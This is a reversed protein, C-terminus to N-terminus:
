WDLTIINEDFIRRPILVDKCILSAGWPYYVVSDNKNIKYTTEDISCINLRNLIKRLSFEKKKALSKDYLKCIIDIQHKPKANLILGLSCYDHKDGLYTIGIYADLYNMSEEYDKLSELQENIKEMDETCRASLSIKYM